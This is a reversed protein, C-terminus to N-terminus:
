VPVPMKEHFWYNCQSCQIWRTHAPYSKRGCLQCLDDLPESNELIESAIELRRRAIEQSSSGVEIHGPLDLFSSIITSGMEMVFIGCSTADIQRSHPVVAPQWVTDVWEEKGLANRRRKFLATFREAARKAKKLEEHGLPDLVYVRRLHASLYVLIWHDGTNCAGIIGQYKSLNVKVLRFRVFAKEDGRFIVGMTYLNLHYLEKGKKGKNMQIQFYLEIVYRNNHHRLASTDSRYSWISPIADVSSIHHSFIRGSGRHSPRSNRLLGLQQLSAACDPLCRTNLQRLTSASYQLLPPM